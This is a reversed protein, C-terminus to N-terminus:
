EDDDEGMDEEDDIEEEPDDPDFEEDIDTDDEEDNYEVVLEGSEYEEEVIEEDPIDPASEEEQDTDESTDVTIINFAREITVDHEPFVVVSDNNNWSQQIVTPIGAVLLVSSDHDLLCTLSTSDHSLVELELTRSSQSIVVTPEGLVNLDTASTSFRFTVVDGTKFTLM